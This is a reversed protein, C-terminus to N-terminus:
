ELEAPRRSTHRIHLIEVTEDRVRYYVKYPRRPVTLEYVGTEDTLPASHPFEELRRIAREIARKVSLAGRPSRAEIYQFIAERDAFARPTYRVRM